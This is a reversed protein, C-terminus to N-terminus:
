HTPETQKVADPPTLPLQLWALGISRRMHSISDGGPADYFIALQNKHRIVSPLGIARKSWTCNQGDLVVAKNKPDWRELDKSWYVWVADTYEVGKAIAVHNAFLFWTRNKPEYYLSSNEIQESLPLIPDADVTWSSNLDKGHAIGLTRRIPHDVSASFFQLYEGGHRIIQGPSATASYYTGPMPRFPIVVPQKRWPGSPSASVAKMTLYPFFPIRDPPPSAHPTGLYFMHWKKGDFYTTGYSASASDDSHELGLQLAPGAIKWHTLDRSTALTTLWGAPGAADYHMYYSRGSKFVWVDRAGLADCGAPCHGYPLIIGADTADYRLMAVSRGDEYRAVSPTRYDSTQLKPLSASLVIAFILGTSKYCQLM